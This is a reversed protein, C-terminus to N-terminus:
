NSVQIVFVFAGDLTPTGSIEGTAANLSLGDPLAGSIVSWTLTGTIGNVALTESYPTGVDGDTLPSATSIGVVTFIYADAVSSSGATAVIAFSYAGFTTPTGSITATNGAQSLTLGTPLTGVIAFTTANSNTTVQQSYSANQCCTLPSLKTMTLAPSPQNVTVGPLDVSDCEAQQQAWEQFMEAVIANIAAQTANAPITRVIPSKCGQISIQGGETYVPDPIVIPPPGDGDPDEGDYVFTYPFVGPSCDYGEPCSVVASLQGATFVRGSQLSYTEYDVPNTCNISKCPDCPM